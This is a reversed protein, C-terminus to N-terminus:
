PHFVKIYVSGIDAINHRLLVLGKKMDNTYPKYKM